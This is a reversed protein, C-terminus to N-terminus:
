AARRRGRKPSEGVNYQAKPDRRGLEVLFRAKPGTPSNDKSKLFAHLKDKFEKSKSIERLTEKREQGSKWGRVFEWYKSTREASFQKPPTHKEAGARALLADHQRRSIVKRGGVKQYRRAPDGPIKRYQEPKDGKTLKSTPKSTVRLAHKGTQARKGKAM